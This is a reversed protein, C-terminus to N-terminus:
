QLILIPEWEEPLPIRTNIYSVIKYVLKKPLPFSYILKEYEKRRKGVLGNLFPNMRKTDSNTKARECWIYLYDQVKEYDFFVWSRLYGITTYKPRWYFNTDMDIFMSISKLEAMTFFNKMKEQEEVYQESKYIYSIPYWRTGLWKFSTDMFLIIKSLLSGTGIQKKREWDYFGVEFNVFYITDDM